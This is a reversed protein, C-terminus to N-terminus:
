RRRLVGRRSIAAILYQRSALAGAAVLVTGVLVAVISYRWTDRGLFAAAMCMVGFGIAAEGRRSREARKSRRREPRSSIRDPTWADAVLGLGVLALLAGFLIPVYELRM